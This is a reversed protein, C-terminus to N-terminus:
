PGGTVKVRIFRPWYLRADAAIQWFDFSNAVYSVVLEDDAALAPHAKAAYCFIKKDWAMEPCRHLVAPDSWRGEPSAATRALIRDSLGRHTYVLVYRKLKPLFSVSCESAMEGAIPSASRYDTQWQGDRYFRWAAFNELEAVRVRAVLLHRDRFGATIEEDTGYIYVYDGDRLVGAGFNIERRPGFLTCSLKKQNVRWATPDDRPNSVVGLWQGILRFGFVGGAGTKEVQALFLYLRDNVCIGAQLWLWGRGDASTLLATAKGDALRRIVFRIKADAGLGEQLAATNNVITAAQRKGREVKGVWTDSFLWLLRDDEVPVSYAGDGGIWSESRQFLANLRFDPEAKGFRITSPQTRASEQALIAVFLASLVSSRNM